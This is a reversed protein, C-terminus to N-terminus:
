DKTKKLNKRRVAIRFTLKTHRYDNKRIVRSALRSAQEPNYWSGGRAIPYEEGTDTVGKVPKTWEETNGCCDYLGFASIDTGRFGATELGHSTKGAVRINSFGPIGINGWPFLRNDPGRATVEWETESLLDAELSHADPLQYKSCYWEACEIDVGVVPIDHFNHGKLIPINLAKWKNDIRTVLPEGMYSPYYKSNIRTEGHKSLMELYDHMKVPHRGVAIPGIEVPQASLSNRAAIDGGVRCSIKPVLTFSQGLNEWPEINIDIIEPGKEGRNVYLPIFVRPERPDTKLTLIYGTDKELKFSNPLYGTNIISATSSLKLFEDSRFLTFPKKKDIRIELDWKEERSDLNLGKFAFLRFAEALDHKGLELCGRSMELLKERIDQPLPQSEWFRKFFSRADTTIKSLKSQLIIKIKDTAKKEGAAAKDGLEGPIKEMM